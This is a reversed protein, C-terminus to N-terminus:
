GAAAVAWPFRELPPRMAALPLNAATLLEPLWPMVQEAVHGAVHEVTQVTAQVIGHGMVQQAVQAMAQVVHRGLANEAVQGM